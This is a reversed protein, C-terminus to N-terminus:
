PLFQRRDEPMDCKLSHRKAALFDYIKDLFRKPLISLAIALLKFFGGMSKTIQIIAEGKSYSYTNQFYIVSEYNANKHGYIKFFTVGNLPAFYMQGHKDFRSILDVVRHCFICEGDIFVIKLNKADM